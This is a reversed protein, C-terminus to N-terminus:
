NVKSSLPNRLGSTSTIEARIEGILIPSTVLVPIKNADDTVYVTMQEGGKFITGEILLPKFKVCNYTGSKVKVKEKGLYRIHLNYVIDDLFLTLPVTDNAKYKSWDICRSYYVASLVDQTCDPIKFTGKLSTAKNEEQKFTVNQYFSYGGENVDRVFKYPLLTEKDIYSEYKDRVKFFWDYSKYTEGYGTAHFVDKNNYKADELTFSAEGASLWLAGWKFAIKYVIKEGTTFSKNKANCTDAPYQNAYTIAGALLALLVFLSLIIKKM